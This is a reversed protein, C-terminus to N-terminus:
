VNIKEGNLWAKERTRGEVGAGQSDLTLSTVGPVCGHPKWAAPCRATM